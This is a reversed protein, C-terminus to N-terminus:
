LELELLEQESKRVPALYDHTRRYTKVFSRIGEAESLEM